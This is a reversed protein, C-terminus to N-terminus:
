LPTVDASLAVKSSPLNHESLLTKTLIQLKHRMTEDIETYGMVLKLDGPKLAEDKTFDVSEIHSAQLAQTLKFDQPNMRVNIRDNGQSRILKICREALDNVFDRSHILEARLAQEAIFVALNVLVKYQGQVDIHQHNLSDILSELEREQTQALNLLQQRAKEYGADFAIKRVSALEKQSLNEGCDEASEEVTQEAAVPPEDHTLENEDLATGTQDQEDQVLTDTAVGDLALRRPEWPSFEVALDSKNGQPLTAYQKSERDASLLQNLKWDINSLPQDSL